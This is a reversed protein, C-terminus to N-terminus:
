EHLLTWGSKKKPKDKPITKLKHNEDELQAIRQERQKLTVDRVSLEQELKVERESRTGTAVVQAAPPPAPAPADGAPQPSAPAPIPSPTPGGAPSDNGDNM